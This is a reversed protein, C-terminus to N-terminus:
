LTSEQRLYEMYGLSMELIYVSVANTLRDANEDNPLYKGIIDGVQEYQSKGQTNIWETLGKVQRLEIKSKLIDTITMQGEMM